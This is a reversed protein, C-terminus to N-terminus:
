VRMLIWMMRDGIIIMVFYEKRLNKAINRSGGFMEKERHLDHIIGLIYCM